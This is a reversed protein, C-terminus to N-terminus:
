FLHSASRCLLMVVLGRLVLCHLYVDVWIAIFQGPFRVSFLSVRVQLSTPKDKNMSGGIKLSLFFGRKAMCIRINRSNRSRLVEAYIHISLM